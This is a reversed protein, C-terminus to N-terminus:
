LLTLQEWSTDKTSQRVLHIYGMLHTMKYFGRYALHEVFVVIGCVEKVHM